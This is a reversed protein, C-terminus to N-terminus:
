YRTSSYLLNEIFQSLYQKGPKVFENDWNIEKFNFDGAIVLNSNREYATRILENVKRTSEQLSDTDADSPSRYVCGCLLSTGNDAPIEIWAHDTYGEIIIDVESVNLSEKFYIIVGRKGSAGLNSDDPNFNPFNKYGNIDLLARPIPNTQKKPIVETILIIDPEDDTIMMVLDDRKNM